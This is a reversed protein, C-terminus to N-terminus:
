SHSHHGDISGKEWGGGGWLTTPPEMSGGGEVPLSFGIDEAILSGTTM